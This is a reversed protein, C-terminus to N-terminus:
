EFLEMQNSTEKKEEFRVGIGILRVAKNERKAAKSLLELFINYNPEAAVCEITTNTFDFFKIKVFLKHITPINDIKEARSLFKEYLPPLQAKCEELSHLDNIFTNEVSLSKRVRENKVERHDIGRCIQYLHSGFNGFKAVLEYSSLQQLDLCTEIGMNAMKESTVKGVGFLKKVPLKAVFEDTQQPLIVFQGDPKNWDSAVKALFKNAAVGASATIGVRQKIKQRIEKAMLTASGNCKEVDTVDLFAEDLSLPEIIKTYEKYISMIQQSAIRYKDMNPRIIILNKCLKIATASAMASHIGFKRAVYNCTSIVGRQDPQGGVALPQNKYKPNDRIEVAAFFCDCDCHIIKRQKQKEM